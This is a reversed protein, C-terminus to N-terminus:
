RGQRPYTSDMFKLGGDPQPELLADGDVVLVVQQGRLGFTYDKTFLPPATQAATSDKGVLRGNDLWLTTAGPAGYGGNFETHLRAIRGTDHVLEVGDPKAAALTVYAAIATVVGLVGATWKSRLVGSWRRAPRAAAPSRAPEPPVPTPAPERGTLWAIIEEPTRETATSVADPLVAGFLKGAHNKVAIKGHPGALYLKADVEVLDMPSLRGFARLVALADADTVPVNAKGSEPVVRSGDPSLNVTTIKLTDPAPTNM